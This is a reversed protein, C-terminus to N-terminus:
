CFPVVISLVKSRFIGKEVMLLLLDDLTVEVNIDCNAHIARFRLSTSWVCTDHSRVASELLKNRPRNPGTVTFPRPHRLGNPNVQLATSAVTFSHLSSIPRTIEFWFNTNVVGPAYQLVQKDQSMYWFKTKTAARLLM